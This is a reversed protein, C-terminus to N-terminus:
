QAWPSREGLEMMEKKLKEWEARNSELLALNAKEAATEPPSGAEPPLSGEKIELAFFAHGLAASATYFEYASIGAQTFVARLQPYKELMAATERKDLRVDDGDNAEGEREIQQVLEPHREGVENLRRQVDIVQRIKHMTLRYSSIEADRPMTPVPPVDPPQQAAARVPTMVLVLMLSLITTTSRM